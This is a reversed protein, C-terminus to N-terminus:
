GLLSLVGQPLQNAQALMATGAQQLIQNRTLEATEAAFDTDQIRSRAASLNEVSVSLNSITSTFRNQIAGLDARTSDINALAGDIIDMAANAGEVTSIDLTDVTELDSSNLVGANTAFLGGDSADINSSVSFSTAGSKFEVTGGIVSSDGKNSTLTSSQGLGGTVDVTGAGNSNQFDLISIDEGTNNSLTIENNDVNLSATVGTKGTQDNISSALATLDNTTVTASLSEGNLTLSVVGDGTLNGLTATSSATANVGTDDAIANIKAVIADASDNTAVNVSGSGTGAITLKQSEVNNGESVDAQGGETVEAEDTAAVSFISLPGAGAVNSLDSAISYNDDLFIDVKGIQIAAETDNTNALDSVTAEGFKITSDVSTVVATLPTIIAATTTLAAAPNGGASGTGPTLAFSATTAAEAATVDVDNSNAVSGDTSTQFTLTQATTDHTFTISETGDTTTFTYTNDGNDTAGETKLDTVIDAISSAGGISITNATGGDYDIDFTIASNFDSSISGRATNIITFDDMGLNTGSLSSLSNNSSDYSLDENAHTQNLNSVATSMNSDFDEEYTDQNYSFHVTETVTGDGSTIDFSIEDGNEVGDFAPSDIIVSNSASATVGNQADLRSAISSADLQTADGSALVVDASIGDPNTISITQDAPTGGALATADLADAYTVAAVSENFTDGHTSVYNGNTAVSSGLVNNDTSTKEIGLSDSTAKGINVDITEGSNAGVQFQESQYSGDLLKIGNFSTTDAIRDLESVLQNVESQLSLRDSASNTANSSQVALERIRQLINTSEQLAGEATQTLSIGDNANRSAQTLGNIQSTMRDTIALGAADDKASNIRLGSSLRQLSTTLGDQSKSLNRQANLSPINTNIGMAM